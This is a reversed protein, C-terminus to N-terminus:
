GITVVMVIIMVTDGWIGLVEPNGVLSHGSSYGRSSGANAGLLLKALLCSLAPSLPHPCPHPLPPRVTVPLSPGAVLHRSRWVREGSQPETQPRGQSHESLGEWQPCAM